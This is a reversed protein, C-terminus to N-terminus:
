HLGLPVQQAPRYDFTCAATTHKEASSTWELPIENEDNAVEVLRLLESDTLKPSKLREALYLPLTKPNSMDIM